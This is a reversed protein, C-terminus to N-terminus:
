RQPLGHHVNVLRVSLRQQSLGEVVLFSEGNVPHVSKIKKM